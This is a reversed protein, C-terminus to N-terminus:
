ISEMHAIGYELCRKCCARHRQEFDQVIDEVPAGIAATMPDTCLAENYAIVEPCQPDVPAYFRPM